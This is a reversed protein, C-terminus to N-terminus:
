RSAGNLRYNVQEPKVDAAKLTCSAAKFPGEAIPDAPAPPLWATPNILHFLINHYLYHLM